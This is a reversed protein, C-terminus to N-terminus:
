RQMVILKVASAASGRVRCAYVGAALERLDIRTVHTGTGFFGLNFRQVTAGLADVVEIEVAGQRELTFTFQTSQDAPNPHLTANVGTVARDSEDARSVAAPDDAYYLGGATAALVHGASDFTFESVSYAVSNPNNPLLLGSDFTHWTTGFDTSRYVRSRYYNPDGPAVSAYLNGRPSSALTGLQALEPETAHQGAFTAGGDTSLWTYNMNIAMLNGNAMAVLGQVPQNIVSKWTRGKDTTRAVIDRPALLAGDPAVLMRGTFSPRFRAKFWSAGRDTTIHIDTGDATYITGDRGVALREAYQGPYTTGISSWSAGFDTSVMLQSRYRLGVAFLSDNFLGYDRVNMADHVADRAFASDLSVSSVKERITTVHHRSSTSVVVYAIGTEFRDNLTDVVAGATRTFINADANFLRGSRDVVIRSELGFVSDVRINIWTAGGDLSQFTGTVGRTYLAGGPAIVLRRGNGSEARGRLTWTQGGDFSRFVDDSQTLGYMTGASDFTLDAITQDEPLLLPAFTRSVNDFRVLENEIITHLAGRGYWMKDASRSAITSTDGSETVIIVGGDYHHVFATDARDNILFGSHPTIAMRLSDVFDILQWSSGRDMSRWFSGDRGVTMVDGDRNVAVEYVAVSQPWVDRWANGGDTSMFLDGGSSAFLNEADDIFIREVAGGGIGKARTWSPEQASAIPTSALTLLAVFFLNMINPSSTTSCAQPHRKFNVVRM